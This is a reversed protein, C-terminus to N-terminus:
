IAVAEEFVRHRIYPSLGGESVVDVKVGLIDQVDQQFAIHDLLSRGQQFRVLLDVDSTRDDEGRAASGFLRVSVVGHKKALALISRRHGRVLEKLPLRGRSPMPSRPTRGPAPPTKAQIWAVRGGPGEDLVMSHEAMYGLAEDLLPAAIKTPLANRIKYRSLPVGRQRLVTEIARLTGTTPGRRVKGTM